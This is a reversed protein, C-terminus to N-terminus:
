QEFDEKVGLDRLVSIFRELVVSRAFHRTYGEVARLKMSKREDPILRVWRDLLDTTGELDDRAVFAGGTAQVEPWIYVKNSILVPVGCAMSEIVAVPFGETHSPLVSAEACHLAGWKIDGTLMGTWTVRSELELDVVQKQLERQWGVQDSGAFVLHLSPDVRSVKAFAEILLDCGKKPHIRGLFLLLRKSQLQPFKRLFVHRQHRPDGPPMGVAVGAFAARTQYPWPWFSQQALARESEAFFLIARADRLVRYEILLWYLWKKFHKIASDQRFWPDLMSHTWIFYPTTKGRLALQTGLGVFQWVGEIIVADYTEAHAHMWRVFRVSVRYPQSLTTRLTPKTPGLAHVTAPYDLLWPAEPEDLCVVEVSHGLDPLGLCGQRVAEQPGGLAPNLSSICRLLKM